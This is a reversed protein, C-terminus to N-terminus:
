ICADYIAESQQNNDYADERNIEANNSYAGQVNEDSSELDIVESYETAEKTKAAGSRIFIYVFVMIRVNSYFIHGRTIRTICPASAHPLVHMNDAM